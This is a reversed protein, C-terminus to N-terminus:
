KKRNPKRKKTNDKEIEIKYGIYPSPKEQLEGTKNPYPNLKIIYGKNQLTTLFKNFDVYGILQNNEFALNLSVIQKNSIEEKVPNIVDKINKIIGITGPIDVEGAKNEKDILDVILKLYTDTKLESKTIINSIEGEEDFVVFGNQILEKKEETLKEIIKQYM